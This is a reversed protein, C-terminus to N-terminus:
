VNSIRRALAWVTIGGRGVGYRRKVTKRDCKLYRAIESQKWVKGDKAQLLEALVPRYDEAERM